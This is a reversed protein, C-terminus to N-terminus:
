LNIIKNLLDNQQNKLRKLNNEIKEINDSNTKLNNYINDYVNKDKKEDISPIIFRSFDQKSIRGYEIVCNKFEYWNHKLYYYVYKTLINNNLTFVYLRNDVSFENDLYINDSFLDIIIYYQGNYQYHNKYDIRGNSLYKKCKKKSSNITKSDILYNGLLITM